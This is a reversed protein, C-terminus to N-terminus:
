DCMKNIRIRIYIILLVYLSCIIALPHNFVNTQKWLCIMSQRTIPDCQHILCLFLDSFFYVVVKFLFVSVPIIASRKSYVSQKLLLSIDSYNRKVHKGELTLVAVRFSSASNNYEKRLWYIGKETQNNNFHIQAIYSSSEIYGMWYSM